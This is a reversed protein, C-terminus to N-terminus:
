DSNNELYIKELCIDEFSKRILKTEVKFRRDITKLISEIAPITLNSCIESQLYGCNVDINLLADYFPCKKIIFTASEDKKDYIQVDAGANEMFDFYAKVGSDLLSLNKPMSKKIEDGVIKAQKQIVENFIRLGIDSGFEDIIKM